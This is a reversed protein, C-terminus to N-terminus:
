SRGALPDPGFRNTGNTGRLFGLEVLAWSSLGFAILGLIVAMASPPVGAKQPGAIWDMVSPLVVFPLLWWASKNRDHLRKVYIAFLSVIFAVVVTCVGAMTVVGFPSLDDGINMSDRHAILMYPVAIAAIALVFFGSVLAFQWYRLRNIRGRFDFLYRGWSV